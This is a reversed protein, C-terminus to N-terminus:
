ASNPTNQTISSVAGKLAAQSDQLGVSVYSQAGKFVTPLCGTRLDQLVLSVVQFAVTFLLWVLMHAGPVLAALASAGLEGCVYSLTQGMLTVAEDAFEEVDKREACCRVPSLKHETLHMTQDFGVVVVSSIGLWVLTGVHYNGKFGFQTINYLILGSAYLPVGKLMRLVSNGYVKGDAGKPIKTAVFSLLEMNICAALFAIAWMWYQVEASGGASAGLRVQIFNSLPYGVWWSVSCINLGNLLNVIYESLSGKQLSRRIAEGILLVVSGAGLFVAASPGSDMSPVLGFWLGALISAMASTLNSIGDDVTLALLESPSLELVGEKEELQSAADLQKKYRFSLAALLSFVGLMCATYEAAGKVDLNGTDGLADYASQWALTAFVGSLLAFSRSFIRLWISTM